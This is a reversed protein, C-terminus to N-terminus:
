RASKMGSDIGAPGLEWYGARLWRDIRNAPWFAVQAADGGWRYVAVRQVVMRGGSTRAIDVDFSDGDLLLWYGGLYALLMAALIVLVVAAPLCREKM